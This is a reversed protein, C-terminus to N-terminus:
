NSNEQPEKGNECTVLAASNGIQCLASEDRQSTGVRAAAPPAAGAAAGLRFSSRSSIHHLLLSLITSEEREEVGYMGNEKGAAERKAGVRQGSM